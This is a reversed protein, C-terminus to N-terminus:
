TEVIKMEGPQMNDLQGFIRKGVEMARKVEPDEKASPDGLKAVLAKFREWPPPVKLLMDLVEEIGKVKEPSLEFYFTAFTRDMSDDAVRVFAPHAELKEYAEHYENRYCSGIRTYVGLVLKEGEKVVFTDRFRPFDDLDLDVLQMLGRSLPNVGLLQNYLSM